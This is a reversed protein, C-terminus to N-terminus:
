AVEPVEKSKVAVLANGSDGFLLRSLWGIKKTSNPYVYKAWFAFFSGTCESTDIDFTNDSADKVVSFGQSTVLNIIQARTFRTQVSVYLHDLIGSVMDPNVRCGLLARRVSTMPLFRFLPRLGESVMSLLGGRGYAAILLTGGPKLANYLNDLAFDKDPLHQFVGRHHITDFENQPLRQTCLDLTEFKCEQVEGYVDQFNAQASEINKQSIDIVVMRRPRYSMLQIAQAGMGGCGAELVM